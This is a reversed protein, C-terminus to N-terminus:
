VESLDMFEYVFRLTWVGQFTSLKLQSEMRLIRGVEGERRNIKLFEQELEFSKM